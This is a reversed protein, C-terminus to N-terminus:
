FSVNLSLAGGVNAATYNYISQSSANVAFGASASLQAWSTLALNLSAGSYNTM